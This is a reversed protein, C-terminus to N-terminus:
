EIQFLTPPIQEQNYTGSLRQICGIVIVMPSPINVPCLRFPPARRQGACLACVDVEGDEGARYYSKSTQPYLFLLSM